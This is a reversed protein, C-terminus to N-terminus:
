GLKRAPFDKIRHSVGGGHKGLVVDFLDLLVAVVGTLEELIGEKM